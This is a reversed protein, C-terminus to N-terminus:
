DRRAECSSGSPSGGARSALRAQSGLRGLLEAALLAAFGLVLTTGAARPGRPSRPLWEVGSISYITPNSHSWDFGSVELVLGDPALELALGALRPHSQGLTQGAGAFGFLLPAGGLLLGLGLLVGCQAAFPREASDIAGAGPGGPWQAVARGMLHLGSIALWGMLIRPLPRPGWAQCVMLVLGCCVVFPVSSWLGRLTAWPWARDSPFIRAARAALVGLAPAVLALWALATVADLAGVAGPLLGVLAFLATSGLCWWRMATGGDGDTM